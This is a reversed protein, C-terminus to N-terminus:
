QSIPTRLREELPLTRSESPFLLEDDEIRGYKEKRWEIYRRM